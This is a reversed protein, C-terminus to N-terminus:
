SLGVAREVPTGKPSKGGRNVAWLAVPYWVTNVSFITVVDGVRFGHNRTLATCLQTAKTKLQAFDLKEKTIADIFAGPQEKPVKCLPSYKESEFAWEWTTIHEPM